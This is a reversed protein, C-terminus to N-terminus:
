FDKGGYSYEYKGGLGCYGNKDSKLKSNVRWLMCAADKCKDNILPCHCNEANESNYHQSSVSQYKYPNTM